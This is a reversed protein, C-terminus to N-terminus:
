AIRNQLPRGELANAALSRFGEAMKEYEFQRAHWAATMNTRPRYILRYVGVMQVETYARDVPLQAPGNEARRADAFFGMTEGLMNVAADRAAQGVQQEADTGGTDPCPYIIAGEETDADVLHDVCELLGATEIIGFANWFAANAADHPITKGALDTKFWNWAPLSTNKAKATFEWIIWTGRETVKRREYQTKILHWPLGGRDALEHVHYLEVLLKLVRVDQSRRIREIPPVENQAGTVLTNPLWIWDPESTLLKDAEAAKMGKVVQPVAYAPVLEYRSTIGRGAYLQSVIGKEILQEIARKAQGRGLGTYKEIAHTSWTSTRCSEDTGCALFIYAVAANLGVDCAAHFVTRDLQFFKGTESM